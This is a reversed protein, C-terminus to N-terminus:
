NSGPLSVSMIQQKFDPVLEGVSLFCPVSPEQGGRTDHSVEYQMSAATNVEIGKELCMCGNVLSTERRILNCM